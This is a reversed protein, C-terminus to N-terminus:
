GGSIATIFSIRDGDRVPTAQEGSLITAGNLVAMSLERDLRDALYPHHQVLAGRLEALDAVPAELLVTEAPQDAERPFDVTVAFGTVARVLDERWKPQPIGSETLGSIKYFRGKLAEFEVPDLREGEYPGESTGEQFWRKPLTDDNAGLGLRHNLLRELGNINAGAAEVKEPAMDVGTLRQLQVAFDNCDPLSPSNFLWTNFRCMGVADGSAYVRECRAVAHEKGEYATPEAAVEGSYLEQKFQPDDNISANIELTVRNRLHDMGRTAVALGLAFAKIIRADHPDSQFLGKSAMRYDLAAAPYKGRTVAKGSDALTDGFGRREVILLLLNEILEADGWNLALGGTDEATILGRQYLEMAWAIASGTSASDLGLDNLMNNFRIVQEPQDIGLGPGFKGLTVYEPGDGHAWKDQEEQGTGNEPSSPLRNRARCYVPCKYCGAMGDRYADFNEADLTERWGTRQNNLVGLAGLIRSPKYLFPTGVKKLVKRTVSTGLIKRGIAKSEARYDDEVPVVAPRGLLLIAKLGLAGMKAGAGGRAWISKPGAMIGASLVLNEGARTIRAMAMDRGEQCEFDQEITSTLAINDLGQYDSADLFEVEGQDLKLLTWGPARGYLVIHDIGQRRLFSPFYDGANSDLIADSDPAVGSVNGRPAGPILSTLVGAGFILPVQPDLPDLGEPLLNYLLAMNAGRGGLFNQFIERPLFVRRTERRELDVFLVAGQTAFQPEDFARECLREVKEQTSIM